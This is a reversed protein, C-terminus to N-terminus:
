EIEAPYGDKRLRYGVDPVTEIVSGGVGLAVRLRHVSVDVIRENARGTIGWVRLLLDRRTFLVGPQELFLQLLRIEAPRLEVVEGAVRVELTRRELELIGCRLPPPAPKVPRELDPLRRAIASARLALERVDFPKTVYDDAGCELGRVRDEPLGHATMMMIGISKTHEGGRLQKLVEFGDIDPLQVDLVVLAPVYAAARALGEQGTTAHEVEFGARRLQYDVLRATDRSDEIVLAKM